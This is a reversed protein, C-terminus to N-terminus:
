PQHALARPHGGVMAAGGNLLMDHTGTPSAV